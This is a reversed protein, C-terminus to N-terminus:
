FDENLKIAVKSQSSSSSTNINEFEKESKLAQQLYSEFHSQAFLTAPRLYDCMKADNGWTSQKHVIVKKVDAISFHKLVGKIMKITSDTNTKYSTKCVENFYEIIEVVEAKKPKVKEVDSCINDESQAQENDEALEAKEKYIEKEEKISDNYIDNNHLFEKCGRDFFSVGQLVCRYKNFKVNNVVESQKEVFGKDILSKLASDITPRVVGLWDALYQRSGSFCSEGDQSFGYIIAYVQLENGKLDLETRMWGSVQYYNNEKM